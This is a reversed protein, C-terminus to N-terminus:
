NNTTRKIENKQDKRINKNGNYIFLGLLEKIYKKNKIKDKKM